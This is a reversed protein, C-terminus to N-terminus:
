QRRLNLLRGEQEEKIPSEDFNMSKLNELGLQEIIDKMTTEEQEEDGQHQEGDM